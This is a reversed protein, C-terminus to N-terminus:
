LGNAYYSMLPKVINGTFTVDRPVKPLPANILKEFDIEEDEVYFLPQGPGLSAEGYRLPRTTEYGYLPEIGLVSLAQSIDQTSLVTRRSHHMFRTAETIVQSLRYEVENQVAKITMPNLSSIGVSEAADKVNDPNWLLNSAM